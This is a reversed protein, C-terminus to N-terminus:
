ADDNSGWSYKIEGAYNKFIKLNIPLMQSDTVNVYFKTTERSTEPTTAPSAQM